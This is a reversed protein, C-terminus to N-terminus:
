AHQHNDHTHHHGVPSQFQGAEIESRQARVNLLGYLHGNGVTSRRDIKIVAKSQAPPWRRHHQAHGGVAHRAHDRLQADFWRHIAYVLAPRESRYAIEAGNKLERYKIALAGADANRLEALGPMHEGHIAAPDAFNGQEFEAAIKTLHDRILAIQSDDLPDKAVVQQIGGQETKSFVHVTRELSFPMIRLGKETVEDLRNPTAPEVASLRAPLIAIGVATVILLLKMTM